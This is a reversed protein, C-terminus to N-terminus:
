AEYPLFVLDGIHGEHRQQTLAQRAIGDPLGGDIVGEVLLRRKDLRYFGVQMFLKASSMPHEVEVFQEFDSPLVALGQFGGEGAPGGDMARAGEGDQGQAIRGNAASSALAQAQGGQGIVQAMGVANGRELM